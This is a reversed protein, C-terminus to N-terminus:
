GELDAREIQRDVRGSVGGNLGASAKMMSSPEIGAYRCFKWASRSIQSVNVGLLAARQRMSEQGVISPLGLAYAVGSIAVAPSRSELVFSCVLVLLRVMERSKNRFESRRMVVDGGNEDDWGELREWDFDCRGELYDNKISM